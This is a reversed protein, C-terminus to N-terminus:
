LGQCKKVMKINQKLEEIIPSIDELDIRIRKIESGVVHLIEAYKVTYGQKELLYAYLSLQLRYKNINNNDLHNFPALMKGKKKYLEGNTKLDLLAVERKDKDLLEIIDLTGALNLSDNFLIRESICKGLGLAKFSEVVELLYPAKPYRDYKLYMEVEYVHTEKKFRITTM